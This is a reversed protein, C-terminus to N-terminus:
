FINQCIKYKARFRVEKGLRYEKGFNTGTAQDKVQFSM